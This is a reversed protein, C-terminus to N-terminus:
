PSVGLQVLLDDLLSAAGLRMKGTELWFPGFRAQAMEIYARAEELSRVNGAAKFGVHPGLEAIAEILIRVAQPTTSIIQKGTSTKLFAAGERIVTRCVDHITQPDRLVGTELTVTLTAREGCLAKCAAVMARGIHRNGAIQARFPFVLDIEDAGTLIAAETESEVTAIGAGGSPFNVAAVVKIDRAFLGDLTRRALGAFRPLVCIAAVDGVPTLGKQCLAVIREATDDANLSTLELLRLAKQAIVEDSENIRSM